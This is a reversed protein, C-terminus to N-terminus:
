HAVAPLIATQLLAAPVPGDTGTGRRDFLRPQEAPSPGKKRLRIPVPPGVAAKETDPPEIPAAFAPVHDQAESEAQARANESQGSLAVTWEPPEGPRGSWVKTIQIKEGPAPALQNLLVVAPRPLCLLEGATTEYRGTRLEFDYQGEPDVLAVYLPKNPAIHIQKMSTEGDTGFHIEVRVRARLLRVLPHQGAASCGREPRFGIRVRSPLDCARIVALGPETRVVWWHNAAQKRKGCGDCCISTERSMRSGKEAAGTRNRRPQADQSTIGCRRCTRRHERCVALLEGVTRAKVILPLLDPCIAEDPVNCSCDVAIWLEYEANWVRARYTPRGCSECPLAETYFERSRNWGSRQDHLPCGAADGTDDQRCNCAPIKWPM